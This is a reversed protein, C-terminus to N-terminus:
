ITTILVFLRVTKCVCVKDVHHLIYRFCCTFQKHTRSISGRKDRIRSLINHMKLSLPQHYLKTVITVHHIFLKLKKNLFILNIKQYGTGRHWNNECCRKVKRERKIGRKLLSVKITM